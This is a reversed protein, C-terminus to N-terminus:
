RGRGAGGCVSASPAFARACFDGSFVPVRGVSAAFVGAWQRAGMSAGVRAGPVGGIEVRGNKKELLLRCVLKSQSQLESTHEESRPLPTTCSPSAPSKKQMRM